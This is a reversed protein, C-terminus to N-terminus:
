PTIAKNLASETPIVGPYKKVRSNTIKEIRRPLVVKVKNTTRIDEGAEQESKGNESYFFVWIVHNGAKHSISVHGTVKEKANSAHFKEGTFEEIKSLINNDCDHSLGDCTINKTIKILM